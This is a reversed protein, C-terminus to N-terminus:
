LESSLKRFVLVLLVLTFLKQLWGPCAWILWIIILCDSINLDSPLPLRVGLPLSIPNGSTQFGYLSRPATSNQTNHTPESGPPIPISPIPPYAAYREDRQKLRRGPTSATAFIPKSTIQGDLLNRGTRKHLYLAVMQKIISQANAASAEYRLKDRFVQVSTSHELAVHAEAVYAFYTIVIISHM